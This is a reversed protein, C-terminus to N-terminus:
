TPCWDEERQGKKWITRFLFFFFFITIFVRRTPVIKDKFLNSQNLVTDRSM